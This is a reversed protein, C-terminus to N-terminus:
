KPPSPPPGKSRTIYAVEVAKKKLAKTLYPTFPVDTTVNNVLLDKVLNMKKQLVPDVPDYSGAMIKQIDPM